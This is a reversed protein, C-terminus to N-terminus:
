DWALLARPRHCNIFQEQTDFSVEEEIISGAPVGEARLEAAMVKAIRPADKPAGRLNSKGGSTILVLKPNIRYLAAGALVREYSPMPGIKDGELGRLSRYGLGGLGSSDDARKIDGGFIFVASLGKVCCTLAEDSM